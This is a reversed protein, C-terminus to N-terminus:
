SPLHRDLEPFLTQVFAVAAREAADLAEPDRSAVPATVRVLAADTRNLRIADVVTYIKGWYESAVVRDHSQYWYLVFQRELGKEIVVRNVEIARRRDPAVRVDITKRGLEVPIWGAGPLCNLPSHITAGQRQTAYYGVYLRLPRGDSAFYSRVTYDDVRLIELIRPPLEPEVRGHWGGLVLPLDTLPRRIPTSEARSAHALGLSAALFIAALVLLRNNM